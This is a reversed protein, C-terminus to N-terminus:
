DAGPQHRDLHPRLSELIRKLQAFDAAGILQSWRHEIGREIGRAAQQAAHGRDTLLVRQARADQPDPQSQVLGSSKLEKLLYAASQKTIGAADALDTLRSGQQAIRAALRGQAMTFQFGQEHLEAAIEEEFARQAIFLLTGVSIEQPSEMSM